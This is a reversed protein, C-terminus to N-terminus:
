RRGPNLEFAAVVFTLALLVAAATAIVITSSLGSPAAIAHLKPWAWALLAIAGVLAM